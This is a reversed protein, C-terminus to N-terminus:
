AEIMALEIKQLVDISSAGLRELAIQERETRTAEPPLDVLKLAAEIFVERASVPSHPIRPPTWWFNVNVNIDGTHVFSHYWFAPVFLMDGPELTVEFREADAFRPFKALDPADINVRSFNPPGLATALFPYLSKMAYPSFLRAVKKGLVQVNLNHRGGGDYHNASVTTKGSVWFGCKHMTEHEFYDPVSFDEALPALKPNAGRHVDHFAVEDGALYYHADSSNRLRALYDGFTLSELSNIGQKSYLDPFINCSSRRYRFETAGLTETLYSPSWRDFAPWPGVTNKLLLPRYSDILQEFDARSPADITEVTRSENV